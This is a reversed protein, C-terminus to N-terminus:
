LGASSGEPGSQSVFAVSRHGVAGDSAIRRFRVNAAGVHAHADWKEDGDIAALFM